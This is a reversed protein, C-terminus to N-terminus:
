AVAFFGIAPQIAVELVLTIAVTDVLAGFLGEAKVPRVAMQGITPVAVPAVYVEV